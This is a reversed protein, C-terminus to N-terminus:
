GRWAFSKKKRFGKERDLVEGPKAYAEQYTQPNAYTFQSQSNAAAKKAKEAREKAQKELRLIQRILDSERIKDDANPLIGEELLLRKCAQFEELKRKLRSLKSSNKKM